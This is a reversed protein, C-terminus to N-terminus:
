SKAVPAAALALQITTSLVAHDSPFKLTPFYMDEVFRREGTNDKRGPSACVLAGRTFLVFDKPNCDVHPSTQCENRPVAKNLQPQLYTRAHCTTNMAARPVGPFCHDLPLQGRACDELFSDVFKTKGEPDNTKYTNADLGTLVLRSGAVRRVADIVPTSALGATDGHFSCMVFSIPAGVSDFRLEVECACIDGDSVPVAMGAPFTLAVERPEGGLRRRAVLILSNQDRVNDAAAPKMIYFREVLPPVKAFAETFSGAVEQLFIVDAELYEANSTLVHLTRSMKNVVLAECIAAKVSHWTGPAVSNMIHVLMADFIGLCVVQLAISIAEEEETVEPYKARPIPKLLACVKVSEVGGSKQRMPLEQKFIFDMWQEFWAGTTPMAMGYNNIVTPRCAVRGDATNLTNTIRDPMSTFRKAGISREKLFGAIITRRSLDSEWIAEVKDVGALGAEM